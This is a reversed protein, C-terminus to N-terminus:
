KRKAIWYFLAAIVVAAILYAPLTTKLMLLGSEVRQEEHLFPTAQWNFSLNYIMFNIIFTAVALSAYVAFKKM